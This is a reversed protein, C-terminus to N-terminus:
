LINETSRGYYTEKTEDFKFLIDAESVEFREPSTGFYTFIRPIVAVFEYRPHSISIDKCARSVANGILEHNRCVVSLNLFTM